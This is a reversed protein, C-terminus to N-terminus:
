GEKYEKLPDSMSPKRFKKLAKTEIQRIRERTLGYRNGITELTEGDGADNIGFRSTLIDRERETLKSMQTMLQDSLSEREAYSDPSEINSVLFDKLTTNEDSVPEDISKPALQSVQSIFHAKEIDWGLEDSIAFFSVAKGQLIKELFRKARKFKLVNTHVHVPLRITSGKDSLARTIAQRIWWTAYTSFKYGLTPNFKEVARMLGLIGEQFLDDLTLDSYGQYPKATHFVLGLNKSIMIDRAVAASEIFDEHQKTLVDGSEVEEKALLGLQVKRGLKVEEEATLLKGGIKKAYRELDYERKEDNGSSREPVWDESPGLSNDDIDVSIGMSELQKIVEAGQNVNIKRKLFIKEVQDKTLAGGQREYDACLIQVVNTIEQEEM